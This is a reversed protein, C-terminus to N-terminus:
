RWGVVPPIGLGVEAARAAASTPGDPQDPTIAAHEIRDALEDCRLNRGGLHAGSPDRRRFSILRKPIAMHHEAVTAPMCVPGVM